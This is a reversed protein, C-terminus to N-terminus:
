TLLNKILDQYKLIMLMLIMPEIAIVNINTKGNLVTMMAANISPLIRANKKRLFPIAAFPCRYTPHNKPRQEPKESAWQHDCVKCKFKQYGDEDHGFSTLYKNPAGCKSYGDVDVTIPKRRNVPKIPDGNERADALIEQHDPNNLEIDLLPDNFSNFRTYSDDIKEKPEFDVHFLKSFFLYVLVLFILLPKLLFNPFNRSIM